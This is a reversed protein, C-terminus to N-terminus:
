PEPSVPPSTPLPGVLVGNTNAAFIGAYDGTGPATTIVSGLVTSKTPLPLETAAAAVPPLLQLKAALSPNIIGGSLVDSMEPDSANAFPPATSIPVPSAQLQALQTPNLPAGPPTAVELGVDSVPESATGTQVTVPTSSTSVPTSTGSTTSTTTSTGSMSTSTAPGTSNTTTAVSNTGPTSSTASNTSTDVSGGSVTTTTTSTSQSGTTISAPVTAAIFGVEIEGAPKDYYGTTPNPGVSAAVVSNVLNGVIQFTDIVGNPVFQDQLTEGAVIRTPAAGPSASLDSVVDGGITMNMIEYGAQITSNLVAIQGMDPDVSSPSTAGDPGINWSNSGTGPTGGNILFGAQITSNAIGNRIDLGQINNKVSINVGQLGQLGNGGGLVTLQALDDGVVIDGAAGPGKGQVVGTVSVTGLDGGVVIQGGASAQLNDGVTLSSLNGTVQIQGNSGIQVSNGVTLTSLNGGVTISGGPNLSLNGTNSGAGGGNLTLSSFNGTVALKGEQSAEFNGGITVSGANGGVTLVGNDLAVNGTISIAGGSAAATAGGSSSTSSGGSTSPTSAGSTTGSTSSTSAGSATSSSSSTTSAAPASSASAAAGGLNRTVNLQGGDNITLNGGVTVTGSLDRGINIHGGNLTLNTSVSLTGTLDNGIDIFGAPGLTIGRNVTLQGLNGNVSPQSSNGAVVNIQAKPGISDLQLSTVPGQLTSIPGELDTSTLGLISGLRGSGVDVAKVSLPTTAARTRSNFASITLQSDQTTGALKIMVSQHGCKETKVQGPGTIALFYAVGGFNVTSFKFFSGALLRRRELDEIHLVLKTPRRHCTMRARFLKGPSERFDKAMVSAGM